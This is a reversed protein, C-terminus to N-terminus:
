FKILYSLLNRYNYRLVYFSSQLAEHLEAPHQQTLISIQSASHILKFNDYQLFCFFNLGLNAILLFFIFTAGPIVASLFFHM